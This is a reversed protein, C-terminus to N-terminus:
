HSPDNTSDSDLPITPPILYFRSSDNTPDNLVVLKFKKGLIKPRKQKNHNIIIDKHTHARFVNHTPYTKYINKMLFLSSFLM